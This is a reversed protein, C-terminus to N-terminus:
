KEETFSDTVAKKVINEWSFREVLKRTNADPTRKVSEVKAILQDATEAYNFGDQQLILNPLDGYKTTVVPLNCAMAEFVSLPVEICAGDSFVPFLYCDACQYFEEINEKYDNIIIVGKKKLDQVLDGDEPYTSSGIVVAQVGYISQIKDLFHMNRNRNIHGVHLVIFKDDPFGYKGRLKKQAQHDVPKFKRLDVGAPIKKVRGGMSSLDKLTKASQAFILDPLIFPIIKRMISSYRRPQLTILITRAGNGYFKLIKARLFSYVTAHATPLYYIIDPNFTKIKRRLYIGICLRNRPLANSYFKAIVKETNKSPGIALIKFM